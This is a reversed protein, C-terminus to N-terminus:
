GISRLRFIVILLLHTSYVGLYIVQVALVNAYNLYDFGTEDSDFYTQNFQYSYETALSPINPDDYRINRAGGFTTVFGITIPTNDGLVFTTAMLIHLVAAFVAGATMVEDWGFFHCDRKKRADLSLVDM